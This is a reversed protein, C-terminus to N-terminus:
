LESFEDLGWCPFKICFGDAFLRSCTCLVMHGQFSTVIIIGLFKFRWLTVTLQLHVVILIMNVLCTVKILYVMPLCGEKDPEFRLLHSKESLVYALSRWYVNVKAFSRWWVLGSCTVENSLGKLLHGEDSIWRRFYVEM